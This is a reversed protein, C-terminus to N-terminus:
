RMSLMEKKRREEPLLCVGCMMESWSKEKKSWKVMPRPFEQENMRREACVVEARIGRWNLCM